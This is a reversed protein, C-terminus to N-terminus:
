GKKDFRASVASFFEVPDPEAEAEAEAEPSRPLHPMFDRPVLPESEKSRMMGAWNAITSSIIGAREDARLEGWQDIDYLACWLSFEYSSMSRGLEELTRGLKLALMM